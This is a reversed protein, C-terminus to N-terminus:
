SKLLLLWNQNGLRKFPTLSLTVMNYYLGQQKEFTYQKTIISFLCSLICSYFPRNHGLVWQVLKLWFSLLHLSLNMFLHKLVFTCMWVKLLCPLLEPWDGLGMRAIKSILVAVQTIVQLFFFLDPSNSVETRM